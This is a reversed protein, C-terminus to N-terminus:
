EFSYDTIDVLHRQLIIKRSYGTGRSFLFDTKYEVVYPLCSLFTESQFLGQVKSFKYHLNLFYRSNM